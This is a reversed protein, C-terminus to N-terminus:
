SCNAMTARVCLGQSGLTSRGDVMGYQLFPVATPVMPIWRSQCAMSDAGAKAQLLSSTRSNETGIPQPEDSVKHNPLNAWGDNGWTGWIQAYQGPDNAYRHVTLDRQHMLCISRMLYMGSSRFDIELLM